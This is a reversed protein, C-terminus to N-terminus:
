VHDDKGRIVRDWHRQLNYGSGLQISTRYHFWNFFTRRLFVDYKKLLCLAFFLHFRFM